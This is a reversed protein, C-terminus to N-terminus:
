FGVQMWATGLGVGNAHLVTRWLGSLCRHGVQLGWGEGIVCKLLLAGVFYADMFRRVMDNVKLFLM